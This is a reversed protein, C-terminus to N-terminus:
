SMDIMKQLAKRAKAAINEKIKVKPSITQLCNYLKELNNMQMFPCQNCSECGNEGIAQVSYFTSEPSIKKMHYLISPETLVIFKEGKHYQVYKVLSSTSGIHHAYELLHKPCEPHAIIKADSHRIRLKILEKESFNEHVICSGNWLVMERGTTKILHAGLHKDPSFIIKQDKPIQNIIKQANSSTVIIDSMGKVEASSNIYTLIIHDPHMKIFNKFDEPKCSSELSCGAMIDPVLVTKLPNLLIAAEAMFRVGCFVIIDKDTKQAKKSLELSDGIFHAIEQIESPQYYHALIVANLEEALSLINEQITQM